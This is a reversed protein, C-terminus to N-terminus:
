STRANLAMPVLEGDFWAVACPRVSVVAGVTVTPVGVLPDIWVVDVGDNLPVAPLASPSEVVTLTVIRLCDSLETTFVKATVREPVDHLMAAPSQAVDPEGVESPSRAYLTVAVWDSQAVGVLVPVLLVLLKVTSAFAGTTVTTPGAAFPM